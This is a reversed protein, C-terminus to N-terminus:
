LLYVISWRSWYFWYTVIIDVILFVFCRLRSLHCLDKIM